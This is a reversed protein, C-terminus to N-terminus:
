KKTVDSFKQLNKEVKSSVKVFENLTKQFSETFEQINEEFIMIRHHEFSNESKKSESIVLYVDGQETKKIDFFYTRFGTTLKTTFIENYMNSEPKLTEIGINKL